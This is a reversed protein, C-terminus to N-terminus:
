RFDITLYLHYDIEPYGSWNEGSFRVENGYEPPSLYHLLIIKKKAGGASIYCLSDALLVKVKEQSLKLRILHCLM